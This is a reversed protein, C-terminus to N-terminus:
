EAPQESKSTDGNDTVRTNGQGGRIGVVTEVEGNTDNELGEKKEKTIRELEAQADDSNYGWFKTLLTEKSFLEIDTLIKSTEAIVKNDDIRGIGFKIIIDELQIDIDNFRCLVYLSKRIEYYLDNIERASRDIASRIMNNMTEESISAGSWEGSLYTRGLESLEYLYDKLDERIQRSEENKGDWTLYETNRVQGNPGLDGIMYKGNIVKLEYGGTQENTVVQAAGVILIPKAHNDVVWSETTLREELAFVIDKIQRFSSEGYVGDSETNVSLWQVTEADDIGSKYYRGERPIWRDKYKYRVPRGIIGSYADGKYEFVREYDFGKCSIIFRIHSPIYSKFIGNTRVDYLIEHLVYAITRDKDSIDVVKYALTPAFVSLGDKRTKICSDGYIECLKFAKRISNVWGTKEILKNVLKDREIDGTTISPDNNFVLEDLKEIVLKFYNLPIVKYNLMEQKDQIITILKKNEAYEGTFLRMNNRYIKNRAKTEEDPFAAGQKLNSLDVAYDGKTYQRNYQVDYIPM